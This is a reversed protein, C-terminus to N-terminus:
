VSDAVSTSASSLISVIGATVTSSTFTCPFALVQVSNLDSSAVTRDVICDYVVSTGLPIM